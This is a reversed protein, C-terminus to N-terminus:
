SCYVSCHEQGCWMILLLCLWTGSWVV